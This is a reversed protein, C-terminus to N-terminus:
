KKNENETYDNASYMLSNSWFGVPTEPYDQYNKYQQYYQNNQQQQQQHHSHLHKSEQLQQNHNQQLNTNKVNQDLPQKKKQIPNYLDPNQTYNSDFNNKKKSSNRRTRKIPFHSFTSIPNINMAKKQSNQIEEYKRKTNYSFYDDSLESSGMNLDIESDSNLDSESNEKQKEYILKQREDIPKQKEGLQTQKKNQTQKKENRKASQRSNQNLNRSINKNNNNRKTLTSLFSHVIM